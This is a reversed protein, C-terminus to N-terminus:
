GSLEEESDRAYIHDDEVYEGRSRAKSNQLEKKQTFIHNHIRDLMKEEADTIPENQYSKILRNYETQSKLLYEEARDIAINELEKKAQVYLDDYELQKVALVEEKEEYEKVKKINKEKKYKKIKKEIEKELVNLELSINTYEKLKSRLKIERPRETYEQGNGDYKVLIHKVEKEERERKRRVEEEIEKIEKNIEERVKEEMDEPEREINLFEGLEEIRKKIQELENLLDTAIKREVENLEDVEQLSAVANYLRKNNEYSEKLKIYELRLNDLKKEESLLPDKEKKEKITPTQEPLVAKKQEEDRNKKVQKEGISSEDEFNISGKKKKKRIKVDPYHRQRVMDRSEKDSLLERLYELRKLPETVGVIGLHQKGAKVIMKTIAKEEQMVEELSKVIYKLNTPGVRDQVAEKTVANFINKALITNRARPYAIEKYHKYYEYRDLKKKKYQPKNIKKDFDKDGKNLRIKITRGTPYKDKIKYVSILGGFEHEAHDEM